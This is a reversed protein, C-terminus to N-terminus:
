RLILLWYLAIWLLLHYSSVGFYFCIWQLFFFYYILSSKFVGLQYERDSKVSNYPCVWSRSAFFTLCHCLLSLEQSSFAHNCLNIVWDCDLLLHPNRSVSSHLSFISFNLSLSLVWCVCSHHFTCKAFGSL